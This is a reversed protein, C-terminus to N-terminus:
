LSRATRIGSPDAIRRNGRRHLKGSTPLCAESVRVVNTQLATALLLREKSSGAMEDLKIQDGEYYETLSNLLKENRLDRWGLTM